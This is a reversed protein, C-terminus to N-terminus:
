SEDPLKRVVLGLGTHPITDTATVSLTWRGYERPRVGARYPHCVQRSFRSGFGSLPLYVREKLTTGSPSTWFVDLPLEAVSSLEQYRADVRTYFDFDYSAGENLQFSFVYPGEGTIFDESSLPERCAVALIGALLFLLARRM